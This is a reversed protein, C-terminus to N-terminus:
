KKSNRNKKSKYKKSIKGGKKSKRGRVSSVSSKVPKPPSALYSTIDTDEDYDLYENIKKGIENPLHKKLLFNEAHPNKKNSINVEYGNGVRVLNLYTM